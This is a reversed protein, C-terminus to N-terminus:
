IWALSIPQTTATPRRRTISGAMNSGFVFVGLCVCLEGGGLESAELGAKTRAHILESESLEEESDDDSDSGGDSTDSTTLSPNPPPSSM